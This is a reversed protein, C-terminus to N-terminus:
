KVAWDVPYDVSHGNQKVKLPAYTGGKGRIMLRVKGSSGFPDTGDLVLDYTHLFQEEKTRAQLFGSKGTKRGVLTANLEPYQSYDIEVKGGKIAAEIEKVKEGAQDVIADTDSVKPFVGRIHSENVSSVRSGVHKEFEDEVMKELDNADMGLKAKQMVASMIPEKLARLIPQSEKSADGYLAPLKEKVVDNFKADVAKTLEGAGEGFVSKFNETAKQRTEKTNLDQLEATQMAEIQSKPGGGLFTYTLTSAEGDEALVKNKVLEKVLRGRIQPDIKSINTLVRQVDQPGNTKARELALSLNNASSKFIIDDEKSGAVGFNKTMRDIIGKQQALMNQNINGDIDIGKDFIRQYRQNGYKAIFGAKDKSWEARLNRQQKKVQQNIDAFLTAAAEPRAFEKWVPDDKAFVSGAINYMEKKVMEDTSEVFAGNAILDDSMKETIANATFKGTMTVLQTPTVGADTRLPSNALEKFRPIAYAMTLNSGKRGMWDVGPAAIINDLQQLYEKKALDNHEFKATLIKKYFDVKKDAPLANFYKTAPTQVRGFDPDKIDDLKIKKILDGELGIVDMQIAGDKDITPHIDGIQKPDVGTEINGAEIMKRLTPTVSQFYDNIIQEREQTSAHNTSKLFDVVYKRQQSDFLINVGTFDTLVKATNIGGALHLNAYKDALATGGTELIAKRTKVQSDKDFSGIIDDSEKLTGDLRNVLFDTSEQSDIDMAQSAYDKAQDHYFEPAKTLKRKQTDVFGDVKNKLDDPRTQRIFMERADKDDISNALDKAMKESHQAIYSSYPVGDVNGLADWRSKAGLEAQTMSQTYKSYADWAKQKRQVEMEKQYENNAFTAADNGLQSLARYAGAKPDTAVDALPVSKSISVDYRGLDIGAM